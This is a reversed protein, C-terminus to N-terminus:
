PELFLLSFHFLCFRYEKEKSDSCRQMYCPRLGREIRSFSAQIDNVNRVRLANAFIAVTTNGCVVQVLLENVLTKAYSCAYSIAMMVLVPKRGYGNIQTGM